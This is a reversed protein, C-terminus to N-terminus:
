ATGPRAEERALGSGCQIPTFETLHPLPSARSPTRVPLVQAVGWALEFALFVVLLSSAGHILAYAQWASFLFRGVADYRGYVQQPDRIRLVAWVCVISGLLNAMLMHVPEFPPLEGPLSLAQSVWTLVGHLAAFSWPTVFAVMVILDYWASGQVLRRYQTTTWM